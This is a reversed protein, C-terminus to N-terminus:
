DGVGIDTNFVELLLDNEEAEHEGLRRAIAHATALITAATPPAESKAHEQLADLEAILARHQGRLLTLKHEHHPGMELISDYLGGTAEEAAFHHALMRRHEVLMPLLQVVDEAAGIQRAMAQVQAHEHKLHDHQRAIPPKDNPETM